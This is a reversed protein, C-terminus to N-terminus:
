GAEQNKKVDVMPKDGVEQEVPRHDDGEGSRNYFRAIISMMRDKTIKLEQTLKENQADMTEIKMLASQEGDSIVPAPIKPRLNKYPEILETMATNMETLQSTEGHLFLNIIKQMFEKERTDIANVAQRLESGELEYIDHLYTSTEKMGVESFHNIQSVLQRVSNRDHQDKRVRLVIVLLMISLLIVIGEVLLILLIASVELMNAQGFWHSDLKM